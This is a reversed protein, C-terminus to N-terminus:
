SSGGVLIRGLLLLYRSARVNSLSVRRYRHNMRLTEAAPVLVVPSVRPWAALAVKDQIGLARILGDVRLLHSCRVSSAVRAQRAVIRGSQLAVDSEGDDTLRTIAALHRANCVRRPNPTAVIATQQEGRGLHSEM